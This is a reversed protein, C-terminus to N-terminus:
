ISPFKDRTLVAAPVKAPGAHQSFELSNGAEFRYGVASCAGAADIVLV